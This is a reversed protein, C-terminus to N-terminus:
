YNTQKFEWEISLDGRVFIYLDMPETNSDVWNSSDSKRGGNGGDVEVVDGGGSTKRIRILAFAGAKKNTTVFKFLSTPNVLNYYTGMINGCNINAIGAGTGSNDNALSFTAELKDPNPLNSIYQADITRGLDKPQILNSGILDFKSSLDDVYKKNVVDDDDTINLDNTKISSGSSFIVSSGSVFSVNGGGSLKSLTISVDKIQKGSLKNM